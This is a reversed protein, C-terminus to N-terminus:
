RAPPGVPAEMGHDGGRPRQATPHLGAEAAERLQRVAAGPDPTNFVAAGAVIMRAGAAVVGGINRLDIGGDVEIVAGSGTRDLLSRVARLKSESRPLFTQGGFGPNVSMVLVLDIDAAVDELAVVPTSPNLVV